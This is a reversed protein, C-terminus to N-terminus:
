AGRVYEGMADILEDIIERSIDGICGIRLIKSSYKGQGGSVVIGHKVDLRKKLGFLDVDERYISVLTNSRNKEDEVFFKFGLEKVREEIYKRREYTEAQVRELTKELIMDCASDAAVVLGIAPTYPNQGKPLMKLAAEYSFYFKPLDSKALAKEAKKSLAVFALGPPILFGKQSGSVACDVNWADFEFNNIVLGSIADVIFLIDTGKLLEGISKVDNLVGTSTESHTVFVGKLDKESQVIKKVDEICYTKGWEYELNIPDLGYVRCIEVFREGFKGTNIVLVKDGRSFLNVITSEMAGTGSCTLTLVDSETKFIKKLKETFRLFMESYESSRHHILDLKLVDRIKEPVNTPGPTILIKGM